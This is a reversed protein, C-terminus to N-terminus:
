GTQPRSGSPARGAALAWSCANRLQPCQDLDLLLSAERRDERVGRPMPVCSPSLMDVSDRVGLRRGDSMSTVVGRTWLEMVDLDERGLDFPTSKKVRM